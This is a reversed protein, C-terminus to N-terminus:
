RGNSYKFPTEAFAIYIYGRGDTNQWGSVGRPKFGNSYMDIEANDSQTAEASSSNARVVENTVNTPNRKNDYMPWEGSATHPKIM